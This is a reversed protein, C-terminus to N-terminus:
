LFLNTTPTSANSAARCPTKGTQFKNERESFLVIARERNSDALVFHRKISSLTARCLLPLLRVGVWCFCFSKDNWRVIKSEKKKINWIAVSYPILRPPFYYLYCKWSYFVRHTSSSYYFDLLRLTSESERTGTARADVVDVILSRSKVLETFVRDRVPMERCRKDMSRKQGWGKVVAQRWRTYYVLPGNPWTLLRQILLALSFSLTIQRKIQDPGDRSSKADGEDNM